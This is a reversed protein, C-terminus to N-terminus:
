EEVINIEIKKINLQSEGNFWSVESNKYHELLRRMEHEAYPKDHFNVAGRIKSVVVDNIGLYCEGNNFGDTKICIIYGNNDNDTIM